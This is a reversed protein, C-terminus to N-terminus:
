LDVRRGAQVFAEAIQTSVDPIGAIGQLTAAMGHLMAHARDIKRRVEQLDELMQKRGPESFLAFNHHRFFRHMLYNRAKLGEDVADLISQDITGLSKVIKLLAGLTQRDADDALSKFFARQEPTAKDPPLVLAVFSLGVNGAEVELLQAQEAAMGFEAYLSHQDLPM